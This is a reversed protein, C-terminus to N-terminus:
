PPLRALLERRMWADGIREVLARARALDRRALLLEFLHGRAEDSAEALAVLLAEAGKRDGLRWLVPAQALRAAQATGADGMAQAQETADRLTTMAEAPRGLAALAQGRALAAAAGALAETLALAPVPEGAQLLAQARALRDEVRRHFARARGRSLVLLAEGPIVDERVVVVPALTRAYVWVRGLDARAIGVGPAHRDLVALDVVLVEEARAWLAALAAEVEADHDAAGSETNLTGSCVVAAASPRGAAFSDCVEFRAEPDGGAVERARAVPRELVDEGLYRGEFGAGRLALLLAGEGCGADLISGLTAVPTLAEIVARQRMAHAADSEWGVRRAGDPHDALAGYFAEAAARRATARTEGAENMANM